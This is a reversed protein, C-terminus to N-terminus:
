FHGPLDTLSNFEERQITLEIPLVLLDLKQLLVFVPRAGAMLIDQLLFILFLIILLDCSLEKFTPWLGAHPQSMHPDCLLIPLLCEVSLQKFHWFLFLPLLTM